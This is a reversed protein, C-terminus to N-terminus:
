QGLISRMKTRMLCAVCRSKRHHEKDSKEVMITMGCDPEACTDMVLDNTVTKMQKTVKLVKDM